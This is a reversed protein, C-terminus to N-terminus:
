VWQILRYLPSTFPKESAWLKGIRELGTKDWMDRAFGVLKDNLYLAVEWKDDPLSLTFTRM